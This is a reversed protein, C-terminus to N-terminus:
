DREGTPPKPEASAKSAIWNLLLWSTAFSPFIGYLTDSVSHSRADVVIFIQVCFLLVLFVLVLGQWSVPRYIWGWPKFWRYKM